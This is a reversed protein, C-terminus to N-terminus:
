RGVPLMPLLLPYRVPIRGWAAPGAVYLPVALPQLWQCHLKAHVRAHIYPRLTLGSLPRGCCTGRTCKVQSLSPTAETLAWCCSILVAM